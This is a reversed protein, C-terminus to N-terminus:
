TNRSEMCLSHPRWFAFRATSVRVRNLPVGVHIHLRTLFTSVRLRLSHRPISLHLDIQRQTPSVNPHSRYDLEISECENRPPGSYLYFDQGM